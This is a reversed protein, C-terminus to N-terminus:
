EVGMDYIVDWNDNVRIELEQKNNIPTPTGDENPENKTGIGYLFNRLVNYCTQNDTTTVPDEGWSSESWAWLPYGAEAIQKSDKPLVLNWTRLPTEGDTKNYLELRFTVKEGGETVKSFPIIFEGGFVSGKKYKGNIGEPKEWNTDDILKDPKANVGSGDTGNVVEDKIEGFWETLDIDYIVKDAVATGTGNVVYMSTNNEGNNNYDMNAFNGLVIQPNSTSAVLRLANGTKGGESVYPINTVYGFTGAVQRNLVVTASAGGSTGNTNAVEVDMDASGAFIEEGVESSNLTLTVDSNFTADKSIDGIKTSLDTYDSEDSYGFAYVTYNESPELKCEEKPIELTTKRGDDTASADVGYEQSVEDNMWNDILHTWVVKGSRDCVIVKVKNIQQDAKSSELPRGARTSPTSSSTNSVQLVIKQMGQEAPTEIGGNNDLVDDNSCSTFAVAAGMALYAAVFLNRKRM